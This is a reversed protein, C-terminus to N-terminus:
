FHINHSSLAPTVATFVNKFFKQSIYVKEGQFTLLIKNINPADFCPTLFIYQMRAARKTLLKLFCM